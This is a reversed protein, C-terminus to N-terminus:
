SPFWVAFGARRTASSRAVPAAAPKVSPGGASRPIARVELFGRRIRRVRAWTRSIRSDPVACADAFSPIELVQARNDMGKSKKARLHPGSGRLCTRECMQRHDDTASIGVSRAISAFGNGRSAVARLVVPFRVRLSRPTRDRKACSRRWGCLALRARRSPPGNPRLNSILV